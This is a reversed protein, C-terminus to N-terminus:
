EEVIDVLGDPYSIESGGVDVFVRRAERDVRTFIGLMRGSRKARVVRSKPGVATAASPVSHDLTEGASEGVVLIEVGITTKADYKDSIKAALEVGGSETLRRALERPLYGLCDEGALVVYANADYPNEPERRVFLEDGVKCRAAVQQYNSIGVVKSKFPYRVRM